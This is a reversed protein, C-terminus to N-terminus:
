RDTASDQHLGTANDPLTKPYMHDKMGPHVARHEGM